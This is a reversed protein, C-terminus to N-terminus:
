LLGVDKNRSLLRKEKPKIYTYTHKKVRSFPFPLGSLYEPRSIEGPIPFGPPSSDIPDCLTLCLQLSKAAAAPKDYREERGLLLHRKILHNRDSDVTTKPGLFIFDAVTEM